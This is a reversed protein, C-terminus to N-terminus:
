IGNITRKKAMKKMIKNMRNVIIDATVRYDKKSNRINYKEIENYIFDLDETGNSFIDKFITKTQEYGEHIMIEISDKDFALSNGVSTNHSLNVKVIKNDFYENEFSYTDNDFYVVIIYDLKHKMLPSVPINDIVAGDIYTVNNIEILKNVTPMSISAKLYNRVDDCSKDKLNIYNLEFKSTNLCTTYFNKFVSDESEVLHDVTDFVFSTKYFTKRLSLLGDINVENWLKYATDLKGTVYAYANLSGISAASIYTIKNDFYEHIANLAGLQYAGKAMGGSLVLGINLM